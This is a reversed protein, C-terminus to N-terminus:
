CNLIQPISGHVHIPQWIKKNKDKKNKKDKKDKKDKKNKKDKIRKELFKKISCLKSSWYKKCVKQTKGFL